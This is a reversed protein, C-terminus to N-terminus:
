EKGMLKNVRKEEEEEWQMKRWGRMTTMKKYIYIFLIRYIIMTSVGGKWGGGVGGCEEKQEKRSSITTLKKYAPL